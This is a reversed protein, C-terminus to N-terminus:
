CLCATNFLIKFAIGFLASKKGWSIHIRYTRNRLHPPKPCYNCKGNSRVPFTRSSTWRKELVTANSLPIVTNSSNICIKVLNINVISSLVRLLKFYTLKSFEQTCVQNGMYSGEQFSSLLFYNAEVHLVSLLAYRLGSFKLVQIIGRDDNRCALRTTWLVSLFVYNAFCHGVVYNFNKM